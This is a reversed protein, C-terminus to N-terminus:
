KQREETEVNVSDGTENERSEGEQEPKIEATLSEKNPSSLRDYEYKSLTFVHDIDSRKVYYKGEKEMLDIFYSEGNAVELTVSNDKDFDPKDKAVDMVRFAAIAKILDNVKDSNVERNELSMPLRWKDDEKTLEYDGGKVSTVSKVALLSTDLWDKKIAPADYANFALAYVEDQEAARIHSKKFGPSTGVFLDAVPKEGISLTIRRRYKSEAVEFRQHSSSTTTVPWTTRIESLKALLDDLKASDVPLDDEAMLWAKGKKSLTVKSDSDSIVIRDINSKEFHLLAESTFEGSSSNGFLFVLLAIVLQLGFVGALLSINKKM